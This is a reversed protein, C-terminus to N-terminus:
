SFFSSVRLRFLLLSLSVAGLLVAGVASGRALRGSRCFRSRVRQLPARVGQQVATLTFCVASPRSGCCRATSQGDNGGAAPRRMAAVTWAGGRAAMGRPTRTWEIAGVTWACLGRDNAESIPHQRQEGGPRERKRRPLEEDALPVNEGTKRGGVVGRRGPICLEM